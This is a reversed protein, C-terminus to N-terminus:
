RAAAKCGVQMADKTCLAAAGEPVCKVPPMSCLLRGLFPPALCRVEDNCVEMSTSSNGPVETSAEASLGTVGRVHKSSRGHGSTCAVAAASLPAQLRRPRHDAMCIQYWVAEAPAHEEEDCAPPMELHARLVM